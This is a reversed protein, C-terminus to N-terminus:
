SCINSKSHFQKFVGPKLVRHLTFFFNQSHNIKKLMALSLNNQHTPLWLVWRLVSTIVLDTIFMVRKVVYIVNQALNNSCVMGWFEINIGFLSKQLNIKKLNVSSLNNQYTALWLVWRLVSTIVLVTIFMVQKVVYKANQAFNNSCVM